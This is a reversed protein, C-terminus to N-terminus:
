RPVVVGLDWRWGARTCVWGHGFIGLQIPRVDGRCRGSHAPGQGGFPVLTSALAESSGFAISAVMALVIAIRKM